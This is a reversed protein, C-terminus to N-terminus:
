QYSKQGIKTHIALNFIPSHLTSLIHVILDPRLQKQLQLRLQKTLLLLQKRNNSRLKILKWERFGIRFIQLRPSPLM